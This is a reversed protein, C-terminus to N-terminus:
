GGIPRFFTVVPRWEWGAQTVLAIIPGKLEQLDFTYAYSLDLTPRGNRIQLGFVREHAIEFFKIGRSATWRLSAALPSGGASWDLASSYEMARVRRPGEDLRLVLRYSRKLGHARMTDIWTTDGYKWDVVIENVRRGRSVSWPAKMANLALLRAELEGESLPVVGAAAPVGGAWSAVRGFIFFQAVVWVGTFAFIAITEERTPLRGTYGHPPPWQLPGVFLQVVALIVAPIVIIAAMYGFFWVIRM